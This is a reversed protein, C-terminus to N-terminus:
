GQAECVGALVCFGVKVLHLHGLNLSADVVAAPTPRGRPWELSRMISGMVVRM